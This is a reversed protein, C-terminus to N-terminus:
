RGRHRKKWGVVLKVIADEKPVERHELECEMEEPNGKLDTAEMKEQNTKTMAILQKLIAIARDIPEM